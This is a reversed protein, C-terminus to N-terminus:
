VAVTQGIVDWTDAAVRKLTASMAATMALTGGSPAILTVGSGATLTLTGAGAHRINIESDALWAITSQAPVTAAVAGTNTFRLYKGADSLGLMRATTVDTVLVAPAATVTGIDPIIWSGASYVRVKPVGFGDVEDRMRVQWGPSPPMFAWAATATIWYALQGAKGAWVGTPSPGVIYLAGNAPSGPATSLDKDEAIAQCLQDLRALAENANLYNAQGNVLETLGLKATTM